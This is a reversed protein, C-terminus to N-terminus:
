ALAHNGKAPLAGDGRGAQLYPPTLLLMAYMGFTVAAAIGLSAPFVRNKFMALPM